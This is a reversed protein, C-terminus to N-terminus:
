VFRMAWCFRRAAASAAALVRSGPARQADVVSSIPASAPRPRPWTRDGVVVLEAHVRLRSPKVRCWPPVELVGRRLVVRQQQVEGVEVQVALLHYAPRGPAPAHVQAAVREGGLLLRAVEGVVLRERHPVRRQRGAGLRHQRGLDAVEVQGVVVQGLRREDIEVVQRAVGVVAQVDRRHRARPGRDDGPEAAHAAIGVPQAEGRPQRGGQRPDREPQVPPTALQPDLDARVLGLVPQDAAGGHTQRVVVLLDRQGVCGDHPGDRSELGDLRHLLRVTPRRPRAMGAASCSGSTRDYTAEEPRSRRRLHDTASLVDSM